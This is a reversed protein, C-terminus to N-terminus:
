RLLATSQLAFSAGVKGGALSGCESAAVSAPFMAAVPARAAYHSPRVLVTGSSGTMGAFFSLSASIVVISRLAFLQLITL